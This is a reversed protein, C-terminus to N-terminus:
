SAGGEQADTLSRVALWHLRVVHLTLGLDRAARRQSLGRLFCAEAVRRRTPTWRSLRATIYAFRRSTLRDLLGRVHRRLRRPPIGSVRSVDAIRDHRVFVAELIARDQPALYGGRSEITQRVADAAALRSGTSVGRDLDAWTSTKPRFMIPYGWAKGYM